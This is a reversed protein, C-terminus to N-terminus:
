SCLSRYTRCQDNCISHDKSITTSPFMLFFIGVLLLVDESVVSADTLTFKANDHWLLGQLDNRNAFMNFSM